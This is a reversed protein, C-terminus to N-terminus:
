REDDSEWDSKRPTRAERELERKRINWPVQRPKRDVAFPAPKAPEEPVEDPENAYYEPTGAYQDVIAQQKSSLELTFPPASLPKPWYRQALITLAVSVVSSLIAVEGVQDGSM